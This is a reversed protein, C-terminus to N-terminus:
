RQHPTAELAARAAPPENHAPSGAKVRRPMDVVHERDNLAGGNGTGAGPADRPAAAARPRRGPPADHVPHDRPEGVGVAGHDARQARAAAWPHKQPAAPLNATVSASRVRPRGHRPVPPAAARSGQPPPMGMGAPPTPDSQAVAGAVGATGRARDGDSVPPGMDGWREGRDPAAQLCPAGRCPVVVASGGGEGARAPACTKSAPQLQTHGPPYSM